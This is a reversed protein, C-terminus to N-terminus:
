CTFRYIIISNFYRYSVQEQEEIYHYFTMSTQEELDLIGIKGNLKHILGFPSSRSYASINDINKFKDMDISQALLINLLTITLTAVKNM